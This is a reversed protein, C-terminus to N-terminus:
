RGQTTGSEPYSDFTQQPPLGVVAFLLVYVLAIVLIVVWDPFPNRDFILPPRKQSVALM